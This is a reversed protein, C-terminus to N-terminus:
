GCCKVKFSVTLILICVLLYFTMKMVIFWKWFSQTSSSGIASNLPFALVDAVVFIGGKRANHPTTEYILKSGTLKEAKDVRLCSALTVALDM